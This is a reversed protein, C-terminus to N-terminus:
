SDSQRYQVTSKKSRTIKGTIIVHSHVKTNELYWIYCQAIHQFQTSSELCKLELASAARVLVNIDIIRRKNGNSMATM